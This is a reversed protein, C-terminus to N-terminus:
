FAQSVSSGALGGTPLTFAFARSKANERPKSLTIGLTLNTATQSPDSVTVTGTQMNYIVASSASAEITVEMKYTTTFQVSGGTVDWFVVMATSHVGDYVASIHADNQITRVRTTNSKFEFAEISVAPYATYSLVPFSSSPGSGQDLWAAFLDVTNPSASSTGIASWNGTKPGSQVTLSVSSDIQDFTYGINDHWLSLPRSVSTKEGDVIHGDILITGNRRKQDLVSLVPASSSSNIFPIMVRQVGGELFFWAKKWNLASTLPNTYTMAAAGVKGNSVGGVFANKGKTGAKDCSLPTNGYDTTTGPIVSSDNAHSLILSIRSLFGWLELGLCIFRGRIRSGTPIHVGDRRLSPFWVAILDSLDTM